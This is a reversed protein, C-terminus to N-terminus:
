GIGVPLEADPWRLLTRAQDFAFRDTPLGSLALATLVASPGPLATVAVGAAIAAAVLAYGPDSVTPMGTDSLM